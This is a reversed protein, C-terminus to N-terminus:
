GWLGFMTFGTIGRVLRIIGGRGGFYALVGSESDEVRKPEVNTADVNQSPHSTPSSFFHERQSVRVINAPTLYAFPLFQHDGM